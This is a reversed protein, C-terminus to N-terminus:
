RFLLYFIRYRDETNLFIFNILTTEHLRIKCNNVTQFYIVSGPNTIKKKKLTILVKLEALICKKLKRNLFSIMVYM